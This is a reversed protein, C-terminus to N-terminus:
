DDTVRIQHVINHRVYGLSFM